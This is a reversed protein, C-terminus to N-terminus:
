KHLLFSFITIIYKNPTRFIKNALSIDLFNTVIAGGGLFICLYSLGDYIVYRLLAYLHMYIYFNLATRSTLYIIAINRVQIIKCSTCHM